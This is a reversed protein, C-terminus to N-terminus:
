KVINTVCQLYFPICSNYVLRDFIRHLLILFKFLEDSDIPIIQLVM